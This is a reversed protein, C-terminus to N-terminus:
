SGHGPAGALYNQLAAAMREAPTGHPFLTLFGGDPGMLYTLSGHSVLYDEARGDADPVKMRHVRYAKLVARIQADSGTLGVLRPHFHGVYDALVAATDRAPDVTVFLPQVRAAAPGLRDLAEAMTQLGTPCIDPCTTYGFHLLLFRGRYDRDTRVAGTHDVLAFPGGFAIPFDAPKEAAAAPGLLGLCVSLVACARAMM